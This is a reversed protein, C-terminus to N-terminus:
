QLVRNKRDTVFDEKVEMRRDHLAGQINGACDYINQPDKPDQNHEANPGFWEDIITAIIEIQEEQDPDPPFPGTGGPM